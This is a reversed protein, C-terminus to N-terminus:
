NTIQKPATDKFVCNKLTNIITRRISQPITLQMENGRNDRWYVLNGEKDYEYHKIIGKECRYAILDEEYILNGQKDYIYKRHHRLRYRREIKIINEGRYDYDCEYYTEGIANIYEIQKSNLNGYKDYRMFIRTKLGNFMVREEFTYASKYNYKPNNTFEITSKYSLVNSEKYIGDLEYSSQINKM